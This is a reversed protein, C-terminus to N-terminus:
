NKFFQEVSINLSHIEDHHVNCLTVLNEAINKGGKAHHVKHHLELVKRPESRPNQPKSSHYGWGCGPKQCRFNDRTLVEVRVPDSIKRDHEPAQRDEELVYVGIPLDELGQSRTMVPWGDETRLERVRRAWETKDGAVYRLEEGTVHKGVNHRLFELIKAQVSGNSKRITNAVNWRYAAELDQRDEILVYEEPKLLSLAKGDLELGVGVDQDEALALEKATVGSLIPWGREVRLERVRRAWESIGSVVMLEDGHIILGPYTRLYFLIRDRAAPLDENILSSGLDRLLHFAPILSLVNSRLEGSGQNRSFKELVERLQKTLFSPDKQKSRRPM